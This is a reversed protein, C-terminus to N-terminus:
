PNVYASWVGNINVYLATNVGAIRVYVDGDEGGTPIAAGTSIKMKGLDFGNLINSVDILYQHVSDLYSIVEPALSLLIPPVPPKRIM